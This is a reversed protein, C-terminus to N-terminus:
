GNECKKLSFIYLHGSVVQPLTRPTSSGADLMGVTSASKKGKEEVAAHPVGGKGYTGPGPTIEQQLYYIFIYFM